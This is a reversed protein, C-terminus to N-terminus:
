EDALFKVYGLDRALNLFDENTKPLEYHSHHTNNLRVVAEQAFRLPTLANLFMGKWGLDRAVRDKAQAVIDTADPGQLVEDIKRGSLEM